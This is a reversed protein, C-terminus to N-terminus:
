PPWGPPPEIVPDAGTVVTGDPRRLRVHYRVKQPHMIKLGAGITIQADGLGRSVTLSEFPGILADELSLVPEFEFTVFHGPPLNQVYWIATGGKEVQLAEPAVFLLDEQCLVTASPSTNTTSSLNAISATGDSQAAVGEDNLIFATYRYVDVLGNNGLGRIREREPETTQFPGLTGGVSHFCIFSLEQPGVGDFSWDVVDAPNQLQILSQSLSLQGGSRTVFIKHVNPLAM